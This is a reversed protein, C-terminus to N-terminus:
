LPPTCKANGAPISLFSILSVLNCRLWTAIKLMVGVHAKMLWCPVGIELPGSLVSKLSALRRFILYRNDFHKGVEKSNKGWNGISRKFSIDTFCTESFDLLSKWIVDLKLGLAVRCGTICQKPSKRNRNGSSSIITKMKGVEKSTKNTKKKKKKAREPSKM